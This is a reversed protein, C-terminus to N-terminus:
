AVAPHLHGPGRRPPWSTRVDGCASPAAAAGGYCRRLVATAGTRARWDHTSGRARWSVTPHERRGAHLIQQALGPPAERLSVIGGIGRAIHCSSGQERTRPESLLTWRGVMRCGCAEGRQSTAVNPYLRVAMFRLGEKVIESPYRSGDIGPEFSQSHTECTCTHVCTM